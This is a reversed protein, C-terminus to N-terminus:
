SPPRCRRRRWCPRCPPWSTPRTSPTSCTPGTPTCRSPRAPWSASSTSPPGAATTATPCTSGPSPPPCAAAPPGRHAGRGRGRDQRDLLDGDDGPPQRGASRDRGRPPRRGAPVRRDVLLAPLGPRRACHAMLLGAAEANGRLDVEWRNSKVVALNLVYDVDDPVEDFEGRALDVPICTVGLAELEARVGPDRFRAIGIVENDAALARVLPLAVQGAPGTVLIRRGQDTPPPRDMADITWETSISRNQDTGPRLTPSDSAMSSGQVAYSQDDGARLPM